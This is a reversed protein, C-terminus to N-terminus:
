TAAIFAVPNGKMGKETKIDNNIVEVEVNTTDTTYHADTQTHGLDRTATDELNEKANETKGEREIM